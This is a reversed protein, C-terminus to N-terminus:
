LDNQGKKNRSDIINLVIAAGLFSMIFFAVRIWFPDILITAILLMLLTASITKEYNKM